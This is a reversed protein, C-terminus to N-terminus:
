QDVEIQEYSGINLEDIESKTFHLQAINHVDVDKSLTVHQLKEYVGHALYLSDDTSLKSIDIHKLIYLQEKKVTYGYLKMRILTEVPKNSSSAFWSDMETSDSKPKNELRRALAKINGDINHENIVFWDVVFQPVKVLMKPPQWDEFIREIDRKSVLFDSYISEREHAVKGLQMNRELEKEFKSM